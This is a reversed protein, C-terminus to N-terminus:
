QIVSHTKTGNAVSHFLLHWFKHVANVQTTQLTLVIERASFSYCCFTTNSYTQRIHQQVTHSIAYMCRVFKSIAGVFVNCRSWFGFPWFTFINVSYVCRTQNIDIKTPEDKCRYAVVIWVAFQKHSTNQGNQTHTHTHTFSIVSGHYFWNLCFWFDEGMNVYWNVHAAFSFVHIAFWSNVCFMFVCSFSSLCWRLSTIFFSFVAPLGTFFFGTKIHRWCLYECMVISVIIPEHREVLLCWKKHSKKHTHTHTWNSLLLSLDDTLVVLKRSKVNNEKKKKTWWKKKKREEVNMRWIIFPVGAKIRKHCHCQQFHRWKNGHM